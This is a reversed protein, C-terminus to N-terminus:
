PLDTKHWLIALQIGREVLLWIMAWVVVFVVFVVFVVLEVVFVVLYSLM